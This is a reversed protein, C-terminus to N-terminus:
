VQELVLTAARWGTGGVWPTTDTLSVVNVLVMGTLLPDRYEFPGLGMAGDHYQSVLQFQANTLKNWSLQFTRKRGMVDHTRAGRLSVHTGGGIVQLDRSYDRGPAPLETPPM